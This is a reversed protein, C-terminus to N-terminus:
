FEEEVMSACTLDRNAAVKLWAAIKPLEYHYFYVMAPTNIAKTAIKNIAIDLWMWAIIMHGFAQMYPVANALAESPNGTSWAAKTADDVALMANDLDSAYTALQPLQMARKTTTTM